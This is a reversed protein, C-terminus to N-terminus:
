QSAGARQTATFNYTISLSCNQLQESVGPTGGTSCAGGNYRFADAYTNPVTVTVVYYTSATQNPASSTIDQSTTNM